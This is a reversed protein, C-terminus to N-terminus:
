RGIEVFGAEAPGERLLRRYLQHPIVVAPARVGILRKVIEVCTMPRADPWGAGADAAVPGHLIRRGPAGLHGALELADVGDM